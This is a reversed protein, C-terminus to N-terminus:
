YSSTTLFPRQKFDALGFAGIRDHLNIGFESLPNIPNVNRPQGYLGALQQFRQASVDKTPSPSVMFPRQRSLPDGIDIANQKQPNSLLKPSAANFQNQPFYIVPREQRGADEKSFRQQRPPIYKGYGKYSTPLSKFDAM